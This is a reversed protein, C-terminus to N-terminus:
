TLKVGCGFQAQSGANVLIRKSCKLRGSVFKPTMKGRLKWQALFSEAEKVSGMAIKHIMANSIESQALSKGTLPALGAVDRSGHLAHQAGGLWIGGRNCPGIIKFDILNVSGPSAV